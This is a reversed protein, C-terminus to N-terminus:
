TFLVRLTYERQINLARRLSEPILDELVKAWVAKRRGGRQVVLEFNDQGRQGCGKEPEQGADTLRFLFM